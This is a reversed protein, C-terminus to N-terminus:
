LENHVCQLRFCHMPMCSVEYASAELSSTSLSRLGGELNCADKLQQPPDYELCAMPVEAHRHVDYSFCVMGHTTAAFVVRVIPESLVANETPSLVALLGNETLSTTAANFQPITHTGVFLIVSLLLKPLM